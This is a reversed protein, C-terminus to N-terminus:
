GLLRYLALRVDQGNRLAAVVLSNVNVLTGAAIKSQRFYSTDTNALTTITGDLARRRSVDSPRLAIHNLSM